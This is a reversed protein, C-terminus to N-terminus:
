KSLGLSGELTIPQNTLKIGVESSYNLVDSDV